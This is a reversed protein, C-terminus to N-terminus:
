EVNVNTSNGRSKGGGGKGEDNKFAKGINSALSAGGSAVAAGAKAASSAVNALNISGMAYDSVNLISLLSAVFMAVSNMFFYFLLAFFMMKLLPILIKNAFGPALGVVNGFYDIKKLEVFQKALSGPSLDCADGSKAILNGMTACYISDVGNCAQSINFENTGSLDVDNLDGYYIRDMTALMIALFAFLIAPYLIYGLITKMWKDFMGKTFEFLIAPVFIPAMFILLTVIIISLIAIHAFKFIVMLLLFCYIFSCLSLIIGIGSVWFGTSVLWAVLMGGFSYDCSGGNLYNILKCDLLDWVTLKVGSQFGETATIGSGEYFNEGLLNREANPYKYTCYGLFDRSNQAQLFIDSLEDTIQIIQPFLGTVEGSPSVDYFATGLAFYMVLAYKFIFMIWEHRKVPEPSSMIKIGVIVVYLVLIALIIDRMREQVTQFFPKQLAEGGGYGQPVQIFIKTLQDKLCGVVTSTFHFDSQLFLKVSKRSIGANDTLSLSEGLSHLDKRPELLYKCRTGEVYAKLFPDIINADSPPAIHGCAARVPFLTAPTAVCLKLRGTDEFVKLYGFMRTPAMEHLTGPHFLKSERKSDPACDHNFGTVGRFAGGSATEVIIGGVLPKGGIGTKAQEGYTRLDGFCFPASSNMYGYTRGVMNGQEEDSTDLRGNGGDNVVDIPDFEPDCHYFFPIDSQSLPAKVNNKYKVISGGEVTEFECTFGAKRNFYEHPQVVYTNTCVDGMRGIDVATVIGIGIIGGFVTAAVYTLVTDVAIPSQGPPITNSKSLVNPMYTNDLESRDWIVKGTAFCDDWPSDQSEYWNEYQLLSNNHYYPDDIDISDGLAVFSYLCLTLISIITNITKNKIFFM